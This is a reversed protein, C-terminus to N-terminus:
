ENSLLLPNFNPLLPPCYATLKHIKGGAQIRSRLDFIPVGFSDYGFIDDDKEEIYGKNDWCAELPKNEGYILEAARAAIGRIRNEYPPIKGFYGYEAKEERYNEPNIHFWADHDSPKDPPPPLTRNHTMATCSGDGYWQCVNMGMKSMEDMDNLDYEKKMIGWAPDM